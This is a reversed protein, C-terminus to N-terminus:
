IKALSLCFDDFLQLLAFLSPPDLSRHEQWKELFLVLILTFSKDDDVFVSCFFTNLYEQMLYWKFEPVLITFQAEVIAQVLACV